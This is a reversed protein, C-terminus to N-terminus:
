AARDRRQADQGTDQGSRRGRWRCVAPYLALPSAILMLGLLNPAEGRVIYLMTVCLTTCNLWASPRSYPDFVWGSLAEALRRGQRSRRVRRRLQRGSARRLRARARKSEHKGVCGALHRLWLRHARRDKDEWPGLYIVKARRALEALRPAIFIVVGCFFGATIATAAIREALALGTGLKWAALTTIPVFYVVNLATDDDIERWRSPLKGVTLWAVLFIGGFFLASLALLSEARDLGAARALLYIAVAGYLSLVAVVTVVAM